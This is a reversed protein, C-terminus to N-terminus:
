RLARRFLHQGFLAGDQGAVQDVTDPLVASEHRRHVEVAVRRRRRFVQAVDARGTDANAFRAAAAVGSVAPYHLVGTDDRQWGGVTCRIRYGGDTRQM